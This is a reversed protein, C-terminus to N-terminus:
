STRSSRASARARGHRRVRGAAPRVHRLPVVKANALATATTRTITTPISARTSTRTRRRSAAASPGSRRRRRADRPVQRAGAGGAHGQVDVISDGGGVVSTPRLRRDVPVPVRQLGDVPKLKTETSVVGPVFDGEIVMARRRRDGSCTRSRPRSTPRCRARRAAPSTRRTASSRAGDDDAGEEGVPRDVQDHADPAPRVEGARGPAPLHERVPRHADLRGRRRDLVGAHRLGEADERGHPVRGVDEAADVGANKFSTSTTGSPRSTPARSSSATSSATSRGSRRRCDPSYNAAITAKAFDIPKLAGKKQSAGQDLGPSRRRRSTPRTAARRGRDRARDALNDGASTYKVKVNPYTKTSGTSSPRSPSRSTAPGSASSRSRGPSTARRATSGDGADGGGGDGGGGRGPAAIAAVARSRTCIFPAQENTSRETAHTTSGSGPRPISSTCPARTSPSRSRTARRCARARRRLPRRHDDDRASGRGRADRGRRRRGRGARADGRDRRAARRRAFHVMIESGLAERLEVEGTCAATRRARGARARRGRSGRAPDRPDVERGDYSARAGPADRADRQDLALARTASAVAVLGATRAARADGRAHEDGPQRHLRRRLPQGAPRLAGAADAVQQLEGKRMVAVRDGM